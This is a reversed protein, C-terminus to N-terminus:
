IASAVLYLHRFITRFDRPLSPSRSVEKLAANANM